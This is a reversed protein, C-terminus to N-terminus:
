IAYLYYLIEKHSFRDDNSCARSAKESGQLQAQGAYRNQHYILTSVYFLPDAGHLHTTVTQVALGTM